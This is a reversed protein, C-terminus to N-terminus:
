VSQQYYFMAIKNTDETLYMTPGGTLSVANKTTLLVGELSKESVVVNSSMVSSMKTLNGGGVVIATTSKQTLPESVSHIKHLESVGRNLTELFRIFVPNKCHEELFDLYQQKISMLDIFEIDCGCNLLGVTFGLTEMKKFLDVIGSLSLYRWIIKNEQLHKVSSYLLDQPSHQFLLHPLVIEGSKNLISITKKTDVSNISYVLGNHFKNLYSHITPQIDSQKPLTASSLVVNPITNEKWNKQIVKHLPHETLSDLTITPEDWYLVLNEPESFRLMYEMSTLYTEVDSILLEVLEGRSNDIKEIKGTRPNTSYKSASFNHLKIEGGFGFAIKRGISIGSRALSL